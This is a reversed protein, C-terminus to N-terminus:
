KCRYVSSGATQYGQYLVEILKGQLDFVRIDTEGETALSYAITADPNFPNPYSELLTHVEPKDISVELAILVTKKLLINEGSVYCMISDGPSVPESLTIDAYGSINTRGFGILIGSTDMVAIGAYEVPDSELSVTATLHADSLGSINYNDGDKLIIFSM